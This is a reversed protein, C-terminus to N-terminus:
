RETNQTQNKPQEVLLTLYRKAPAELHSGSILLAVVAKNTLKSVLAVKGDGHKRLM